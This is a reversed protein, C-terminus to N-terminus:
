YGLMVTVTSYTGESLHTSDNGEARKKVSEAIDNRYGSVTTAMADAPGDNFKFCGKEDSKTEAGFPMRFITLEAVYPGDSGSASSPLSNGDADKLESKSIIAIFSVKQGPDSAVAAKYWTDISDTLTKYDSTRNRDSIETCRDNSHIVISDSNGIAIKLPSDYAGKVINTNVIEAGSLTDILEALGYLRVTSETQGRTKNMTSSSYVLLSCISFLVISILMMAVLVEILNFGQQRGRGAKCIIESNKM